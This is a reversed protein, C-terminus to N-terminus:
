FSYRSTAVFPTSGFLWAWIHGYSFSVLLWYRCYNGLKWVGVTYKSGRAWEKWMIQWSSHLVVQISASNPSVNDRLADRIDRFLLLMLKKAHRTIIKIMCEFSEHTGKRATDHLNPNYTMIRLILGSQRGQVISIYGVCSHTSTYSSWLGNPFQINMWCLNLQVVLFM